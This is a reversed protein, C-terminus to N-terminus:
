ARARRNSRPRRVQACPVCIVATSQGLAHYVPLGKVNARCVSCTKSAAANELPHEHLSSRGEEGYEDNACVKRCLHVARCLNCRRRNSGGMLAAACIGCNLAAFRTSAGDVDSVCSRVLLVCLCLLVGM